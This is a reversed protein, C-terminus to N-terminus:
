TDILGEGVYGGVCTCEYWGPGNRCTAHESACFIDKNRVSCEDIDVCLNTGDGKFGPRCSCEHGFQIESCVANDACKVDFCYDIDILLFM